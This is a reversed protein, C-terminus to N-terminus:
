AGTDAIVDPSPPDSDRSGLGKQYRGAADGREGRPKPDSAARDRRAAAATVVEALTMGLADAIREIIDLKMDREGSLYRKLSRVPIGSRDALEDYSTRTAVREGSLTAAVAASLGNSTTVCDLTDSTARGICPNPM